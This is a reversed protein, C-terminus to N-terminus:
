KFIGSTNDWVRYLIRCIATRARVRLGISAGSAALPYGFEALEQGSIAQYQFVEQPPMQRKWRETNSADVEKKVYKFMDSMRLPQHRSLEGYCHSVMEETFPEDLFDCIGQLTTQVNKVLDEYRVERYHSGILDGGRSAASVLKRWMWAARTVTRPFHTAGQKRRDQMSLFTDRGDRVLHIFKGRPFIAALEAIHLAFYPVKCGWRTKGPHRLLYAEHVGEIFGVPTMLERRSLHEAVVERPLDWNRFSRRPNYLDDLAQSIENAHLQSGRCDHFRRHLRLIFDSEPPIIM